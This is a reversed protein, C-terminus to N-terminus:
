LRNQLLHSTSTEPCTKPLIKTALYCNFLCEFVTHFVHRLKSAIRFVNQDWKRDLKWSRMPPGPWFKRKQLHEKGPRARQLTRTPKRPRKRSSKSHRIVINERREQPKLSTAQFKKKNVEVRIKTYSKGHDDYRRQIIMQPRIKTSFLRGQIPAQGTLSNKKQQDKSPEKRSRPNADSRQWKPRATPLM